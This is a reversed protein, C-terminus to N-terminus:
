VETLVRTTGDGKGAISGALAESEKRVVRKADEKVYFQNRRKAQDEPMIGVFDGGVKVPQGDKKVLEWGRGHPGEKSVRNADLLKGRYGRPVHQRVGTGIPDNVMWPEVGAAQQAARQELAKDFATDTVTVTSAAANREALGEDTRDPTLVRWVEPIDEVPKGNLHKGRLSQPCEELGGGGFPRSDPIAEPEAMMEFINKTAM